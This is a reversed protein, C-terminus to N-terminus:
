PQPILSEPTPIPFEPPPERSVCGMIIPVGATQSLARLGRPNRGLTGVTTDVLLLGGAASFLREPLPDKPPPSSGGVTGSRRHRGARQGSSAPSPEHRACGATLVAGGRGRGGQRGEESHYFLIKQPSPSCVCFLGSRRHRGGWRGRCAPSPEHWACVAM